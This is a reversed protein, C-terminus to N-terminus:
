RNSQSGEKWWGTQTRMSRVPSPASEVGPDEVALAPIFGALDGDVPNEGEVGLLPAMEVPEELLGREPLQRCAEVVVKASVAILEDELAHALSLVVDDISPLWIRTILCQAPGHELQCLDIESLLPRVVM